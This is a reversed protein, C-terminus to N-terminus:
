VKRTREFMGRITWIQAVVMLVLALLNITNWFIVRGNTSDVTQAHREERLKIYQIADKMGYMGEATKVIASELPTLSKASAADKKHLADGVYLNFSLQKGSVTSMRNDFCINHIGEQTAKFQLSGEQTREKEYVVKGDPGTIRLDIDLNGGDSVFYSAVVKDNKYVHEFFCQESKPAVFVNLATVSAPTCLLLLCLLASLSSLLLSPSM